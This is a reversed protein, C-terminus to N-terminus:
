CPLVCRHPGERKYGGDRMPRRTAINALLIVVEVVGAGFCPITARYFRSVKKHLFRAASIANGSQSRFETM